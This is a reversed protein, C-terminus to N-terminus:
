GSPSYKRIAGGAGAVSVYINGASDVALDRVTQNEAEFLKVEGICEGEPNFKQIRNVFIHLEGLGDKDYSDAVYVTGGPGVAIPDQTSMLQCAGKGEGGFSKVFEGPAKFKRAELNGGTVYFDHHSASAANNDVAVWTPDSSGISYLFTGNSDFINIRQGGHDVVYIHGTEWDAALGAPGDCHGSGSGPGCFPVAASASASFFALVTVFVTVASM